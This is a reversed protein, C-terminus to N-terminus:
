NSHTAPANALMFEGEESLQMLRIRAQERLAINDYFLITTKGRISMREVPVGVQGFRQRMVDEAFMRPWEILVLEKMRRQIAYNQDYTVTTALQNALKAVRPNKPQEQKLKALVDRADTRIQLSTLVECFILRAEFDAPQIDLARQISELAEIYQKESYQQAATAVLNSIQSIPIKPAIQSSSTDVLQGFEDPSRVCICLFGENISLFPDKIILTTQQTIEVEAYIVLLCTKNESDEIVTQTINRETTSPTLTNVQLFTNLKQSFIECSNITMGTRSSLETSHIPTPHIDSNTSKYRRM